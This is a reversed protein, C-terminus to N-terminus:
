IRDIMYCSINNPSSSGSFRLAGLGQSPKMDVDGESAPEISACLGTLFPTGLNAGSTSSTQKM